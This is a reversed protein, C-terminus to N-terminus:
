SWSAEGIAECANVSDKTLCRGLLSWRRRCRRRCRTGTSTESSSMALTAARTDGSYAKRRVSRSCCIGFGRGARRDVPKGM